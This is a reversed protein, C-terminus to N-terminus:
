KYEKMKEWLGNFWYDISYFRKCGCTYRGVDNDNCRGIGVKTPAHLKDEPIKGVIPSSIKMTHYFVGHGCVCIPTDFEPMLEGIYEHQADIVHKTPNYKSSKAMSRVSVLM